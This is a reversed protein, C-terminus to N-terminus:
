KNLTKSFEILTEIPVVQEGGEYEGRWDFYAYSIVIHGPYEDSFKWDSYIEWEYTHEEFYRPCVDDLFEKVKKCEQIKEITLEM